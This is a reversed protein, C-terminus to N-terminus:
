IEGPLTKLVPGNFDSGTWVLRAVPDSAFQTSAGLRVVRPESSVGANTAVVQLQVETTIGSTDITFVKTPEEVIGVTDGTLQTVAVTGQTATYDLVAYSSVSGLLQPANPAVHFVTLQATAPTAISPATYTVQFTTSGTDAPATYFPNASNANTLTVAQGSLVTWAYTGGSPNGSASLSVVSGADRTINGGTSVTATGGPQSGTSVNWRTNVWHKGIRTTGSNNASTNGFRVENISAATAATVVGSTHDPAQLYNSPNNWVRMELEGTGSAARARIGVLIMTDLPITGPMTWNTGGPIDLSLQGSTNVYARAIATSGSAIRMAYLSAGPLSARKLEVYAVLDQGSTFSLDDWGFARITSGNSAIRIRGGDDDDYRVDTTGTGSMLTYAAGGNDDSNSATVIAAAVGTGPNYKVAEPTSPAATSASTTVQLRPPSASERSGFEAGDTGTQDVAVSLFGGLAAQVTSTPLTVTYSQGMAPSVITGLSGGVAPRNNWTIGTETWSNDAVSRVTQTATSASTTCTFRVNAATVTGTLGTLDFKVYSVIEPASGTGDVDLFTATGNNATPALASVYSDAVPFRDVTTPGSSTTPTGTVTIADFELTNTTSPSYPYIRFTVAGSQQAASLTVDFNQWVPRTYAADLDQSVLNSAYNDVSWRVAFGRIGSTNGRAAKLQLKGPTWASAFNVNFTFYSNATVAAAASTSASAVQLVSGTSYSLDGRTTFTALNSATVASGTAGNTTQAALSNQEFHYVAGSAPLDTPPTTPTTGGSVPVTFERSMISSSTGVRYGTVRVSISSGGTDTVGIVGYQQITGSTPSPGLTYPGGKSSASQHLPSSHFVPWGGVSHSGDDIALAHMDGSLIMGKKGSAALFNGIEQRETDYGFWEDEGATRPGIWPQDFLIFHYASDSNSITDKFWQKQTSGLITKSSNDTASLASKFTRGDVMIFRARGYTFTRYIGGSGGYTANPFVTRFAPVGASGIWSMTAGTGNNRFGSDHDSWIYSLGIKDFLARHTTEDLKNEWESRYMSQTPTSTLDNYWFDGNHIFFRLEERGAMATLATSSPNNCCGSMAFSFSTATTPATYFSRVTGALTGNEEVQWYYLQGPTLGTVEPMTYGNADPTATSSFLVGATPPSNTGVKVRVSTTGSTKIGFRGRDPLPEGSIAHIVTM